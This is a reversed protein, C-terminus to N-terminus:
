TSRTATAAARAPLGRLPAAACDRVSTSCDRVPAPWDRLPAAPCVRLPATPCVRLPATACDRLGPCCARPSPGDVVVGSGASASALLLTAPRSVRTRGYTVTTM